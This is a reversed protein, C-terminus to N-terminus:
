EQEGFHRLPANIIIYTGEGTISRIEFNGNIQTARRRMNALGNQKASDVDFGKGNDIITIKLHADQVEGRLVLQTAESYKVANIIAESIIYRLQQTMFPSVTITDESWSARFTMPYVKNARNILRDVESQLNDSPEDQWTRYLYKMHQSLESIAELAVQLKTRDSTGIQSSSSLSTLIQSITFANGMIQDHLQWALEQREFQLRQEEFQAKQIALNALHAFVFYKEKDEEQFNRPKRYNLFLVGVCGLGSGFRLIVRSVIQEREVFPPRNRNPDDTLLDDYEEVEEQFYYSDHGHILAEVTEYTRQITGDFYEPSYLKGKYAGLKIAGTSPNREYLTVIDPFLEDYAAQVIENLTAQLAHQSLFRSAIAQILLNIHQRSEILQINSLAKGIQGAAIEMIELDEPLFANRRHEQIDLLGIVRSEVMIPLTLESKTKPFARHILYYPDNNVNNTYYLRGTQAVYNNIGGDAPTLCFGQAVLQYGERSASAVCKLSGDSEALFINVDPYRFSSAIDEVVKQLLETESIAGNKETTHGQIEHVLRLSASRDGLSRLLIHLVFSLFALWSSKIGINIALAWSWGPSIQWDLWAMSLCSAVVALLMLETVGYQSMIFTALLYLLWLTDARQTTELYDTYLYVYGLLGTTFAILILTRGLQAIAAWYPIGLVIRRRRLRQKAFFYFWYLGIWVAAWTRNYPLITIAIIWTAFTGVIYPYYHALLTFLHRRPRNGVIVLVDSIASYYNSIDEKM